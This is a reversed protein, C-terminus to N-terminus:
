TSGTGSRGAPPDGPRTSREITYAVALRMQCNARRRDVLIGADRVGLSALQRRARYMSVNVSNQNWGTLEKSLERWTRWGREDASLAHDAEHARALALLLHHHSYVGLDLRSPGELVIAVTDEDRSVRFAMTVDRLSLPQEVVDATLRTLRVIHIEWEGATTRLIDGHTVPVETGDIRFRDLWWRGDLRCFLVIEPDGEPPLAMIDAIEGTELNRAFSVPPSADSLTWKRGRQGFEIVDGGDLDVERGPEIKAGNVFTGNRSGLDRVVWRNAHWRVRAHEGSVWPDDSITLDCRRSRGVVHDALLAVREADKGILLGM